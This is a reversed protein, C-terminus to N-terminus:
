KADLEKPVDVGKTQAIAMLQENAKTHDTVMMQGLDKVSQDAGNASALQGLKVELMGGAAADKIFKKDGASLDTDAGIAVTSWGFAMMVMATLVVVAFVKSRLM